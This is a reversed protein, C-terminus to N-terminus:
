IENRFLESSWNKIKCIVYGTEIERVLNIKSKM